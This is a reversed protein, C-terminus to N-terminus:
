SSITHRSNVMSPFPVPPLGSSLSPSDQPTLEMLQHGRLLREDSTLTGSDRRSKFRLHALGTVELLIVVAFVAFLITLLKNINNNVLLKYPAETYTEDLMLTSPGSTSPSLDQECYVGTFGEDCSFCEGTVHCALDKCHYNCIDECQLGFSPFVCDGFAEFECIYLAQEPRRKSPISINIKKILDDTVNVQIILEDTDIRSNPDDIYKFINQQFENFFDVKFGRMQKWHDKINTIVVLKIVYPEDFTLTWSPRPDQISTMACSANDKESRSKSGDVATQPRSIAHDPRHISSTRTKQKLALNRGGNVYISCISRKETWDIIVERVLQTNNCTVVITEGSTTNKMDQCPAKGSDSLIFNVKFITIQKNFNLVIALFTFFLPVKLKIGVSNLDVCTSPNNDNVFQADVTAEHAVDKYQCLDGFWGDQCLESSDLCQGESNCTGLYCHCAFECKTGFWNRDCTTDSMVDQAIALFIGLSLSM